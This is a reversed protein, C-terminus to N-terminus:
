VLMGKDLEKITKKIERYHERLSEFQVRHVEIKNKMVCKMMQLAELYNKSFHTEEITQFTKVLYASGNSRILAPSHNIVFSDDFWYIMVQDNM